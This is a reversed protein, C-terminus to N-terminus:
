ASSPEPLPEDSPREHKTLHLAERRFVLMAVGALLETFLLSAFRSILMITLGQSLPVGYALFIGVGGGESLGLDSPLPIIIILALVFCYIAAAQLPGINPLGYAQVVVYFAAVTFAMYAATLLGARLIVGPVMLGEIGELFDSLRDAIWKAARQEPSHRQLWEVVPRRSVLVLFAVYGALVVVIAPRAWSWGPVGVIGVVLLAIAGELLQMGLTAALSTAFSTGEAQQLLYNQFYIGAPLIQSADGGLLALLSHRWLPSFRLAHLLYHWEIVRIAERAAIFGLLVPILVPPFRQFALAVQRLDSLSLLLSLVIAGLVLGVIARPNLLRRM